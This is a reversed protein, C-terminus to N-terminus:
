AKISQKATRKRMCAFEGTIINANKLKLQRGTILQVDKVFADASIQVVKADKDDIYFAATAGNSILPISNFVSTETVVLNQKSIQAIGINCNFFLSGCFLRKFCKQMM